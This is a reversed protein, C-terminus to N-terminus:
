WEALLQVSLAMCIITRSTVPVHEPPPRCSSVEIAEIKHRIIIQVLFLLEIREVCWVEFPNWNYLICSREVTVCVHGYQVMLSAHMHVHHVMYNYQLWM